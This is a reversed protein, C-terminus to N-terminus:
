ALVEAARGASILGAIELAQVGSQTSRDDLDIDQALKFKEWWTMLAGNKNVATLVAQMEAETFRDSFAKPTLRRPVPVAVDILWTFARVSVIDSLSDVVAEAADSSRRVAEREALVTNVTTLNAWGAAVREHARALKWDSADILRAAETKIMAKCAAKAQNLGVLPDCVLNQGDYFWDAANDHNFDSPLDILLQHPEQVSAAGAIGIVANTNLDIIAKRM